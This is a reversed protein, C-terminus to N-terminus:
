ANLKELMHVPIPITSQGIHVFVIYGDTYEIVGVRGHVDRVTDGAVLANAM